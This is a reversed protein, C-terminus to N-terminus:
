IYQIEYLKVTERFVFVFRYCQCIVPYWRKPKEPQCASKFFVLLVRWSLSLDSLYLFRICRPLFSFLFTTALPSCPFLCLRLSSPAVLLPIFRLSLSLSLPYFTCFRFLSSSSRPLPLRYSYTYGTTCGSILTKIRLTASHVFPISRVIVNWASERISRDIKRGEKRRRKPNVCNDRKLTLKRDGRRDDEGAFRIQKLTWLKSM